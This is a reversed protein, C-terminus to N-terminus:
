KLPVMVRFGLGQAHCVSLTEVKMKGIEKTGCLEEDGQRLLQIVVWVRLVQSIIFLLYRHVRFWFGYVM